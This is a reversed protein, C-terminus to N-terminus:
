GRNAGPSKKSGNQSAHFRRVAPLMNKCCDMEVLDPTKVMFFVTTTNDKSAVLAALAPWDVSM